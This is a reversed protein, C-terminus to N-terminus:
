LYSTGRFVINGADLVPDFRRGDDIERVIAATVVPSTVQQGESAMWLSTSGYSNVNFTNPGLPTYPQMNTDPGLFFYLSWYAGASATAVQLGDVSLHCDTSGDPYERLVVNARHPPNPLLFRHGIVPELTIMRNIAAM